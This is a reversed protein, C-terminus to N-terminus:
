KKKPDPKPQDKAPLEQVAPPNIDEVPTERQQQQRAADAKRAEITEPPRGALTSRMKAPQDIEALKRDLLVQGLEDDLDHVEGEKVDLLRVEVPLTPDAKGLNRLIKVRM